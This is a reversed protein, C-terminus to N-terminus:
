TDQEQETAQASAAGGSDVNPNEAIDIQLQSGVYALVADRRDDCVMWDIARAAQMASASCLLLNRPDEKPPETKRAQDASNRASDLPGRIERAQSPTLIDLAVLAGVEHAIRERDADSNAARISKALNQLANYADVPVEGVAESKAQKAAKAEAQVSPGRVRIADTIPADCWAQTLPPTNGAKYIRLIDSCKRNDCRAEARVNAVTLSDGRMRVEIIALRVREVTEGPIRGFQEPVQVMGLSYFRLGM